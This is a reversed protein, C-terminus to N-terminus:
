APYGFEAHRTQSMCIKEFAELRRSIKDSAKATANIPRKVNIRLIAHAQARSARAIGRPVYAGARSRTEEHTIVDVDRRVARTPLKGVCGASRSAKM